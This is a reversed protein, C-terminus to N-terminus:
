HTEKRGWEKQTTNFADKGKRREGQVKKLYLGVKTIGMTSDRGSVGAAERVPVGM